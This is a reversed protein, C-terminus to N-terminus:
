ERRDEQRPSQGSHGSNQNRLNPYDRHYQEHHERDQEYPNRNEFRGPCGVLGMVIILTLIVLVKKIQLRDM